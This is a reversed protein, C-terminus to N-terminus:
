RPAAWERKLRQWWRWGAWARRGWRWATGARRAVLLAVAMGAVWPRAKVWRGARRAQDAVAFAPAVARSHLVLRERLGQSRQVLEARRQWYVATRRTM